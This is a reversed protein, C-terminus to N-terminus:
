HKVVIQKMFPTADVGDYIHLFYNGDPLNTVNLQVTGAKTTTTNRQLNGQMDYLRVDFQPNIKSNAVAQVNIEITLIDSVPNPYISYSRWQGTAYFYKDAYGSGCANTATVYIHYTTADFCYAEVCAGGNNFIYSDGGTIGWNFNFPNSLSYYNACFVDTIGINDPGDISSLAPGGTWINYSALEVNGLMVSVWGPYNDTATISVSNGSTSNITLNSSKNWTFGAPVNGSVTYNGTANLCLISPGSITVIHKYFKKTINSLIYISKNLPHIYRGYSGWKSEYWGAYPGSTIRIASHDCDNTWIGYTSDGIWTWCTGYWVKTAKSEIVEEYSADPSTWYKNVNNSVPFPVAPNPNRLYDFFAINEAELPAAIWYPTTGGESMYWTYSHCNYEGTAPATQIVDPNPGSTTWGMSTIISAAESELIALTGAAHTSCEIPKNGVPTYVTQQAVVSINFEMQLLIIIVFCSLPKNKTLFLIFPKM